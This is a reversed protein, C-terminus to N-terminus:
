WDFTYHLLVNDYQVDDRLYQYSSYNEKPINKYIKEVKYGNVGMNDAIESMIHHIIDTDKNRPFDPSFNYVTKMQARMPPFADIMKSIESSYIIIYRRDTQNHPTLNSNFCDIKKLILENIRSRIKRVNEDLETKTPELAAKKLAIIAEQKERLEAATPINTSITHTYSM